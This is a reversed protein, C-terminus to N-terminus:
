PRLGRAGHTLGEPAVRYGQAGSQPILGPPALTGVGPAFGVRYVSRSVLYYM